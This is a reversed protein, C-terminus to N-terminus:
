AVNHCGSRLVPRGYYCLILVYYCLILVPRDLLLQGIVTVVSRGYYCLILVSRNCYCCVTCWLEMRVPKKTLVPEKLQSTQIATMIKKRHGIKTM